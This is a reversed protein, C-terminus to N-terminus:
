WVIVVGNEFYTFQIHTYNIVTMKQKKWRIIILPLNFYIITSIFNNKNEPSNRLLDNILIM